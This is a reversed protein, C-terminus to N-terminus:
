LLRYNNSSSYTLLFIGTWGLAAILPFNYNAIINSSRFVALQLNEQKIAKNPM